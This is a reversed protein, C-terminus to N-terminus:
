TKHDECVTGSPGKTSSCYKSMSAEPVSNSRELTLGNKLFKDHQTRRQGRFFLRRKKNTGEYISVSSEIVAKVSIRAAAAAVFTRQIIM